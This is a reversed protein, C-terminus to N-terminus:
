RKHHNFSDTKINYDAGFKLGDGNKGKNKNYNFIGAPEVDFSEKEKKTSNLPVYEGTQQNFKLNLKVTRIEPGKVETVAVEDKTQEVIEQEDTDESTEDEVEEVKSEDAQQTEDAEDTKEIEQKTEIKDAEVPTEIPKQEDLKEDTTEEEQDNSIEEKSIDKDDSSAKPQKNEEEIEAKENTEKVEAENQSSNPLIVSKPEPSPNEAPIENILELQSRYLKMLNLKFNYTESKLTEAENKRMDVESQACDILNEVKIKASRIMAEAKENAEKIIQESKEKAQKQIQDALLQANLLTNKISDEKTTLDDSKKLAEDLQRKLQLKEKSESSIFSQIQDMFSDVDATKYGGFSAKEFSKNLLDTSTLM